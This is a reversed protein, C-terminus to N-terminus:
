YDTNEHAFLGERNNDSHVIVISSEGNNNMIDDVANATVLESPNLLANLQSEVSHVRCTLEINVDLLDQKEHRLADIDQLLLQLYLPANHSNSNLHDFLNNRSIQGMCEM